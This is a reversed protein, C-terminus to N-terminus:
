VSQKRAKFYFHIHFLYHFVLNEGGTNVTTATLFANEIM